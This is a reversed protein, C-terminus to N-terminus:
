ELNSLVNLFQIKQILFFYVLYLLLFVSPFGVQAVAFQDYFASNNLGLELDTDQLDECSSNLFFVWM